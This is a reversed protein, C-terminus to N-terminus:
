FNENTNTNKLSNELNQTVNQTTTNSNTSLDATNTKVEHALVKEIFNSNLTKVEKDGVYNQDMTEVETPKTSKVGQVEQVPIDEGERVPVEDSVERKPEEQNNRAERAETVEAKDKLNSDLPKGESEPNTNLNSFKQDENVDPEKEM